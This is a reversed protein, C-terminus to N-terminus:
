GVGIGDEIMIERLARYRRSASEVAKAGSDSIGSPRFRLDVFHVCLGALPVTRQRDDTCLATRRHVNSELGASGLAPAGRMRLGLEICRCRPALGLFLVAAAAFSNM